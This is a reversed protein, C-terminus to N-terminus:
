PRYSLPLLLRKEPVVKRNYGMIRDGVGAVGSYGLYEVVALGQESPQTPYANLLAMGLKITRMNTVNVITEVRVIGEAKKSFQIGYYIAKAGLHRAVETTEEAFPLYKEIDERVEKSPLSVIKGVDKLARAVEEVRDLHVVDKRKLWDGASQNHHYPFDDPKGVLPNMAQKYDSVVGGEFEAAHDLAERIAKEYRRAM